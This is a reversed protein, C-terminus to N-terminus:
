RWSYFFNKTFFHNKNLWRKEYSNWCRRSKEEFENQGQEVKWNWQGESSSRANFNFVFNCLTMWTGAKLQTNITSLNDKLQDTIELDSQLEANLSNLKGIELDKNEIELINRM